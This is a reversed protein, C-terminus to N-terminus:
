LIKSMNRERWIEEINRETLPQYIGGVIMLPLAAVRNRKKDWRTGPM